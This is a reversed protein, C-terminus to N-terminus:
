RPRRGSLAIQEPQPRRPPTGGGCVCAPSRRTGDPRMARDLTAIMRRLVLQLELLEDESLESLQGKHALPAVLLHGNNYPFRNLVVVSRPTRLAILNERDRSEALGSCLFCEDPKPPGPKAVYELRWPAWLQDMIEEPSAAIPPAAAAQSVSIEM